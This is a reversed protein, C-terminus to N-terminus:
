QAPTIENTRFDIVCQFIKGSPLRGRQKCVRVFLSNEKVTFRLDGHVVEQGIRHTMKPMWLSLVREATTAITSTEMGDYVGPIYLSSSPAGSLEQKAQVGLVLPCDYRVAASRLRLVDSRVQLRRVDQADSPDGAITQLYDAFIAGLKLKRGTVSGGIVQDVAKFINTLFFHEWGLDRAMSDGVRFIPITGIQLAACQISEMNQALGRALQGADEGSARALQMFAQSEITDETAIFLVVEDRGQRKLQTAVQHSWIDMLGSKFNSTQAQVICMEGPLLPAFYDRLGVIDLPIARHQNAAMREIAQIGLTAVEPPTYIM